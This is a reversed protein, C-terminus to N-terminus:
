LETWKPFIGPRIPRTEVFKARELVKETFELKTSAELTDSSQTITLEYIRPFPFNVPRVRYGDNKFNEQTMTLGIGRPGWEDDEM